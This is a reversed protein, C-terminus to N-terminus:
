YEDKFNYDYDDNSIVFYSYISKTTGYNDKAKISIIITTTTNQYVKEITDDAMKNAILKYGLTKTANLYETYKEKNHVQISIRNIKESYFYYYLFSEANDNYSSKKYAFIVTGLKEDTAKEIELLSWDKESLYEEVGVFDKKQLNLIQQINLNQAIMSNGAILLIGLIIRKM